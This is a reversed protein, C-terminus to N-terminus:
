EFLGKYRGAEIAKFVRKYSNLEIDDVNLSQFKAMIVHLKALVEASLGREVGYVNVGQVYEMCAQFTSIKSNKGLNDEITKYIFYLLNYGKSEAKSDHYNQVVKRRVESTSKAKIFKANEYEVVVNHGALRAAVYENSVWLEVQSLLASADDLENNTLLIGAREVGDLILLFFMMDYSLAYKNHTYSISLEPILTMLYLWDMDSMLALNFMESIALNGSLIPAEAFKPLKPFSDLFSYAAENINNEDDVLYYVFESKTLAIFENTKDLFHARHNNIKLENRVQLCVAVREELLKLKSKLANEIKVKNGM